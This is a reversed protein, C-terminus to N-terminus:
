AAFSLHIHVSCGASAADIVTVSSEALWSAGPSVIEIYEQVVVSQMDDDLKNVVHVEDDM